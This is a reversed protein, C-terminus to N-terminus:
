FGARLDDFYQRLRNEDTTHAVGLKRCKPLSSRPRPVVMCSVEGSGNCQQVWAHAAVQEDYKVAARERLEVPDVVVSDQM